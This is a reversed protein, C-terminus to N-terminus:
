VADLVEQAERRVLYAPDVQRDEDLGMVHKVKGMIEKTQMDNTFGYQILKGLNRIAKSRIVDNGHSLKSVLANFM